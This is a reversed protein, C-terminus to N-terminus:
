SSANSDTHVPSASSRPCPMGRLRSCFSSVPLTPDKQIQKTQLSKEEEEHGRKEERALKNAISREDESCILQLGM